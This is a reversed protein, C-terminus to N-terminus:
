PLCFILVVGGLVRPRTFVRPSASGLSQLVRPAIQLVRRRTFNSSVNKQPMTVSASCRTVSASLYFNSAVCKQLKVVSAFCNTISASQYIKVLCVEPAKCCERTWKYCERFLKYCEGLPLIGGSVSRPSQLVRPAMQFVRPRIFNSSVASEPSELVRPSIQLVRPGTFVSQSASRLSQLVRPGLQLLIGLM